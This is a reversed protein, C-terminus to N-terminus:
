CGREVFLACAETLAQLGGGVVRDHVEVQAGAEEVLAQLRGDGLQRCGEVLADRFKGIGEVLAGTREIGLQHFAEGADVLRQGAARFRDVADEIGADLAKAGRHGILGKRQCRRQAGALFNEFARDAALDVLDGLREGRRVLSIVEARRVAVPSIESASVEPTESSCPLREPRVLSSVKASCLALSSIESVRADPVDSSRVFRELRVLSSVDASCFAM